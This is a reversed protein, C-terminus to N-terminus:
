RNNFTPSKIGMALSYIAGLARTSAQDDFKKRIVVYGNAGMKQRWAANSLLSDIAAAMADVDAVPVLLGTQPDDIIESPGGCATAIMPRGHYLAELCTLSFSESESFNLVVAAQQYWPGLDPTFGHWEVQDQLGLDHARAMLAAKFDRNKQLGMDGGVFQLKWTPYRSAVRAFSELAYEHGKGPIYNAPYLLTTSSPPQYAVEASPLQNYFVAVNYQFPLERRVAKSVAVIRSAYRQHLNCWFNVLRRPFRSPMFRVFCVYPVRGGFFAYLPPILNYFDNNVILAINHKRVLRYFRLTNIILAPIYQILAPVNRRIEKMPLTYVELGRAQLAPIAKSGAPLVYVFEFADGLVEGSRVISNLAGTIDTSNELILIRPKQM